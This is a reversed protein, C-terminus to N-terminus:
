DKNSCHTHTGKVAVVAADRNGNSDALTYTFEDTCRNRKTPTYEILGDALIRTTGFAGNSVSVVRLTDCDGGSDDNALANFVTPDKFNSTIRDDVAVPQTDPRCTENGALTFSTSVLFDASGSQLVPQPSIATAAPQLPFTRVELGGFAYGPGVAGDDIVATPVRVTVTGVPRVICDEAAFAPGIDYGHTPLPETTSSGTVHGFHCEPTTGVMRVSIMNRDDPQALAVQSPVAGTQRYWVLIAANGALLPAGLDVNFEVKAPPATECAAGDALFPEGGFLRRIGMATGDIAEGSRDDGLQLGPAVCRDGLDVPAAACSEYAGNSSGTANSAQVRYCYDVGEAVTTDVYGRAAADTTALAAYASGDAAPRREISFGSLASTSFPTSWALEARTSGTRVAELYPQKPPADTSPALVADYAALLGRTGDQQRAIRTYATASHAGGNVCNDVCGDSYAVYVRGQEDLQIDNFDLMNRYGGCDIGMLCVPGRQVPDGPTANSTVWTAGGDYTVSVYLYWHGDFQTGDDGYPAGGPTSTGLFAFAARDDDGAVMTPFVCAAIDHGASVDVLTNFNEGRDDSTAVMPTGNQCVGIFVRGHPVEDGRGIALGPDDDSVSGPVGHVTWTTGADTSRALGSQGVPCNGNPVYATGDPGVQLHGHLGGCETIDYMPVALGWSFGGDRSLAAQAIAVDQSAYYTANAYTRTPDLPDPLRATDSAPFRGAGITQHDVGANIGAGQPSVTWSEGDDNSLCMLSRKASLQTSITRNTEPDVQLIPDLTDVHILCSKDVWRGIPPSTRADVELRLTQLNALYMIRSLWPQSQQLARNNGAAIGLTPEGASAGLGPEGRTPAYRVFDRDLETLGPPAYTLFALPPEGSPGTVGGSLRALKARGTYPITPAFPAAAVVYTGPTSVEMSEPQSPPNGSSDVVAGNADYLQADWDGPGPDLTITVRFPHGPDAITLTFNDCAPDAPGNCTASATAVKLDGNWTTEAQDAGLSGSAPTAADVASSCAVCLTAGLLLLRPYM